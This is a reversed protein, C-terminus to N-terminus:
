SAAVDSIDTDVANEEPYPEITKQKLFLVCDGLQEFANRLGDELEPMDQKGFRDAFKDQHWYFLFLIRGLRDMGKVLDPIYQDIMTDDRVAKLMSSIMATDFVEQQGSGVAQQISAMDTPSVTAEPRIDYVSRNDQRGTNAPLLQETPEVTPGPFGMYNSGSYVQEPITPATSGVGTLYPDGDFPAAHKIHFAFARGDCAAAQKLLHRADAERLGHDMVLHRVAGQVTYQVDGLQVTSSGKKTRAEMKASIQRIIGIEADLISGPQIPKPDSSSGADSSVSIPGDKPQERQEVDRASPEVALLKCGAPVFLDGRRSRLATGDKGRLHVRQGDRYADYDDCLAGYPRCCGDRSTPVSVSDAYGWEAEDSFCVEYADDGLTSTARFPVSATGRQSLLMVRGGAHKDSVALSDAEPLSDVWERYEEPSTQSCAWIRTPHINLWTRAGDLRVVTSFNKRGDPGHPMHAVFCREFDGPKVLIEYIGTEQPNFLKQAVQVNYAVSVEDGERHDEILMGDELLKEAGEEDLGGQPPAGTADFTIAKLAGRKIPHERHDDLVSGTIIPTQPGRTPDLVSAVKRRRGAIEAAEHLFDLSGHYTEVAAAVKPYRRMLGVLWQLQSLSAQKCFKPLNVEARFAHLEDGVNTLATAAFKPLIPGVWSAYKWPSQSLRRLDPALTGLPAPNRPVSRGIINPKRNLLSNLWGEALPCFLDQDKLYLMEHGKLNGQLFFVPAFVLGRGIKFALVGVAKTNDENRDLLQFGLEYDLLSPAKDRIFAHALDSFSTEFTRDNGAGGLGALKVQSRDLRRIAELAAAPSLRHSVNM